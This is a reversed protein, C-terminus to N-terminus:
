RKSKEKDHASSTHQLLYFPAVTGVEEDEEPVGLQLEPAEVSVIWICLLDTSVL